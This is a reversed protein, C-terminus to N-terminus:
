RISNAIQLLEEPTMAPGSVYRLVTRVGDRDFVLIM